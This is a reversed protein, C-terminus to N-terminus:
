KEPGITYLRYKCGGRIKEDSFCDLIHEDMSIYLNYSVSLSNMTALAELFTAQKVPENKLREIENDSYRIQGKQAGMRVNIPSDLPNGLRNYFFIEHIIEMGAFIAMKEMPGFLFAAIVGDGEWKWLRGLRGTVAKEVINRIDKYAREIKSTSNHKVLASNDAIDLRLITVKREDGERLRGWNASIREKQNEFFLGSIKDFNYGEDILGAVADHIGYLQYSSGMYGYTDIKYLTEIFDVYYGDQIMDAVIRAAANQNSIPMGDTLGTRKYIDYEPNVLQAFRIMMEVTLSVQLCRRCSSSNVNKIKM